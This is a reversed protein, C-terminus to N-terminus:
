SPSVLDPPLALEQDIPRARGFTMQSLWSGLRRAASRTLEGRTLDFPFPKYRSFIWSTSASATPVVRLLESVAVAVVRLGYERRLRNLAFLGYAVHRGEDIGVRRLVERLGPLLTRDLRSLALYVGKLGAAASMGEAVFHYSVLARTEDFPSQTNQWRQFREPLISGLLRDMAPHLDARSLSQMGAVERLYYHFAFSHKAEDARLTRLMAADIEQNQRQREAVHIDLVDAGDAEGFAFSRCVHVIVSRQDASLRGWQERDLSLDIATPNWRGHREHHLPYLEPIAHLRTSPLPAQTPLTGASTVTRRVPDPNVSAM